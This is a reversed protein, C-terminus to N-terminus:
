RSVMRRRTKSAHRADIGAQPPEDLSVGGGSSGSGARRRPVPSPGASRSGAGAGPEAAVGAAGATIAGIAGARRSGAPVCRDLGVRDVHPALLGRPGAGSSAGSGSSQHTLDRRCSATIVVRGEGFTAGSTPSTLVGYVLRCRRWARVPRRVVIGLPAPDIPRFASGTPLPLALGTRRCCHGIRRHRDLRGNRRPIPSTRGGRPRRGPHV